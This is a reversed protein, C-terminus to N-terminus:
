TSHLVNSFTGSMPIKRTNQKYRSFLDKVLLHRFFIAPPPDGVLFDSILFRELVCM